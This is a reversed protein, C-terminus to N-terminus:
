GTLEGRDVATVPHRGKGEGRRCDLRLKAIGGVEHAHDFTAVRLDIARAPMTEELKPVGVTAQDLADQDLAVGTRYNRAVLHTSISPRQRILPQVMSAMSPAQARRWSQPPASRLRVSAMPLAMLGRGGSLLHDREYAAPLRPRIRGRRDPRPELAGANRRREAVRFPCGAGGPEVVSLARAGEPMAYLRACRDRGAGNEAAQRQLLLEGVARPR